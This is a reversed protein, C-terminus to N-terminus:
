KSTGTEQKTGGRKEELASERRGEHRGRRSVGKMKLHRERQVNLIGGGEEEEQMRRDRPNGVLTIISEHLRQTQRPSRGGPLRRPRPAYVFVYMFYEERVSYREMAQKEEEKLCSM